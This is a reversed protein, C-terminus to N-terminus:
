YYNVFEEMEAGSRDLTTKHLKLQILLSVLRANYVGKLIVNMM